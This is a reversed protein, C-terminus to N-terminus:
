LSLLLPENLEVFPSALSHGEAPRLSRDSGLNEDEVATGTSVEGQTGTSVAAAGEVATGTSAAGELPTGTSIAAAGEVASGTSVAAADEVASRTITISPTAGETEAETVSFVSPVTGDSGSSSGSATSKASCLSSNISLFL